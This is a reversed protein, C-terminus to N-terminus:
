KRKRAPPRGGGCAGGGPPAEARATARFNQLHNRAAGNLNGLVSLGDFSGYLFIAKLKVFICMCLDQSSAAPQSILAEAAAAPLQYHYHRQSGHQSGASQQSGGFLIKWTGMSWIHWRGERARGRLLRDIERSLSFSRHQRRHMIHHKVLKCLACLLFEQSGHDGGGGGQM